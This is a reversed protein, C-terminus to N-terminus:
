GGSRLRHSTNASPPRPLGGGSLELFHLAFRPTVHTAASRDPAFLSIRPADSAGRARRRRTAADAAPAGLVLGRPADSRGGRAPCIIRSPPACRRHPADRSDVRAAARPARRLAAIRAGDPACVRRGQALRRDLVPLPGDRSLGDPDVDARQ